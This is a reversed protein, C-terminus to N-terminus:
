PNIGGDLAAELTLTGALAKGLCVSRASGEASFIM